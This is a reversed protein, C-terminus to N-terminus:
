SFFHTLNYKWKFCAHKCTQRKIMQYCFEAFPLTVTKSQYLIKCVLVKFTNVYLMEQRKIINGQTGWLGKCSGSKQKQLLGVEKFKLQPSNGIAATLCTFLHGEYFMFEIRCLSMRWKFNFLHLSPFFSAPNNRGSFYWLSGFTHRLSLLCLLLLSCVDAVASPLLM